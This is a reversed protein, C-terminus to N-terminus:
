ERGYHQASRWSQELCGSELSRRFSCSEYRKPPAFGIREAADSGSFESEGLDFLHPMYHRHRQELVHQLLDWLKIKRENERSM